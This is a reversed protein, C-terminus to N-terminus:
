MLSISLGGDIVLNAGTVYAAADSVLYLAAMGVEEPRGLRGVAMRAGTQAKTKEDYKDALRTHILSPSLTNVRIGLPSSQLSRITIPM